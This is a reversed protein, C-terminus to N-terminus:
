QTSLLVISCEMQWVALNGSYRGRNERVYITKSKTSGDTTLRVSGSGYDPFSDHEIVSGTITISNNLPVTVIDGSQILSGNYTFDTTWENGVSNNSELELSCFVKYVGKTAKVLGLMSNNLNEAATNVEEQTANEDQMVASAQSATNEMSTFSDTTYSAENLKNKAEILTALASKDPRPVLMQSTSQLSQIANEVDEAHANEDSIVSNAQQIALSLSDVSSPLYPATDIQKAKIVESILSSKDPIIYLADLANRLEKQAEAIEDSDSFFGDYVSQARDLAATYQRYSEPTYTEEAQIEQDIIKLLQEKETQHCASLFITLILTIFALTIRKM